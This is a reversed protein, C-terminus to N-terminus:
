TPYYMTCYLPKFCEDAIIAGVFKICYVREVSNINIKVYVNFVIDKNSFIIFNTETVKVFLTFM